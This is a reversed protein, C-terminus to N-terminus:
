FREECMVGPVRGVYDASIPSHPPDPSAEEHQEPDKGVLRPRTCLADRKSNKCDDVEGEVTTQIVPPVNAV